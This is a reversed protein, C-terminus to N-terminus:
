RGFLPCLTDFDELTPSASERTDNEVILARFVLAEKLSEAAQVTQGLDRHVTSLAFLVRAKEGIHLSTQRYIGLSCKLCTSADLDTLRVRIRIGPASSV